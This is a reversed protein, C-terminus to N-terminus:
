QTETYEGVKVKAPRINKEGLNYGSQLTEMVIHDNEKNDVSVMAVADHHNPDFPKGTPTDKSVGHTALISVLQNYISEMGIRWDKPLAEWATKNQLALDFSDLVPILDAIVGEKAFKVFEKQNEEDRKRINVFDAKARQWGDLYEKSKDEADKLKLKLKKITDSQAEDALVSDDIGTEEDLIIDDHEDNM